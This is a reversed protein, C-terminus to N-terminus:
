LSSGTVDSTLEEEVAISVIFMVTSIIELEIWNEVFSASDKFVGKATRLFWDASCTQGAGM